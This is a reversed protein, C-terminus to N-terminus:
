SYTRSAVPRPLQIAERDSRRVHWYTGNTNKVLLNVERTTEISQLSIVIFHPNFKGSVLAVFFHRRVHIYSMATMQNQTQAESKELMGLMELGSRALDSGTCIVSASRILWRLFGRGSDWFTQIQARMPIAHCPLHRVAHVKTVISVFLVESINLYTWKDDSKLKYWVFIIAHYCAELHRKLHRQRPVLGAALGWTQSWCSTHLIWNTDSYIQLVQPANSCIQAYPFSNGFSM